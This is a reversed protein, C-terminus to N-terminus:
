TLVEKYTFNFELELKLIRHKEPNLYEIGDDGVFDKGTIGPLKLIDNTLSTADTYLSEEAALRSSVKLDADRVGNTLVVTMTAEISRAPSNLGETNSRPKIVVAFGSDLFAEPNAIIEYPNPLEIRGSPMLARLLNRIEIIM